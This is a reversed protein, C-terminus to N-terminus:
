CYFSIFANSIPAKLEMEEDQIIYSSSVSPCKYLFVVLSKQTNECVKTSPRVGLLKM